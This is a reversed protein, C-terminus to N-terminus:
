GKAAQAFAPEIFTELKACAAEKTVLEALNHLAVKIVLSKMPPMSSPSAKALAKM